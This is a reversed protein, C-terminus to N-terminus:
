ERGSALVCPPETGGTEEKEEEEGEGVAMGRGGGGLKDLREGDEEEEALEAEEL